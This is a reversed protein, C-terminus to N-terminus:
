HTATMARSYFQYVNVLVHQFMSRGAEVLLLVATRLANENSVYITKPANDNRCVKTINGNKIVMKIVSKSNQGNYHLCLWTQKQECPSMKPTKRSLTIMFVPDLIINLSYPCQRVAMVVNHIFQLRWKIIINLIKHTMRVCIIRDTTPRHQLSITM